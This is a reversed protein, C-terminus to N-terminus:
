PFRWTTPPMPIGNPCRGRQREGACLVFEDPLYVLDHHGSVAYSVLLGVVVYVGPRTAEM